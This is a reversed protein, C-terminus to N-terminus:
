QYFINFTPASGSVSFPTSFGYIQEPRHFKVHGDAFMYNAGDLHRRAATKDLANPGCPVAATTTGIQGNCAEGNDSGSTYIPYRVDAQRGGPGDGSMITSTPNTVQVMSLGVEASGNWFAGFSKGYFYDTHDAEQASVSSNPWWANSGATDLSTSGATPESPCQFLQYSKLYPQLIQVWGKFNGSAGSNYPLYKEDYEQTYQMMSLGIQKLNSSCSARRAAERAKAFAPFLIAALIAIIAIVVLLEILTFGKRSQTHQLNRM